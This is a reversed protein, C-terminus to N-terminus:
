LVDASPLLYYAFLEFASVTEIAGGQIFVHTVRFLLQMIITDGM